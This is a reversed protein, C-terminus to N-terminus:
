PMLRWCCGEFTVLAQSIFARLGAGVEAQAEPTGWPLGCSIAGLTMTELDESDRTLSPKFVSSIQRNSFWQVLFSLPDAVM